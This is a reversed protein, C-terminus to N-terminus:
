FNSKGGFDLFEFVFGAIEGETHGRHARQIGETHGRCGPFKADCTNDKQEVEMPELPHGNNCYGIVESTGFYCVRFRQFFRM